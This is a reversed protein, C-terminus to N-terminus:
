KYILKFIFLTTAMSFEVAAFVALPIIKNVVAYIVWLLWNFPNRVQQQMYEGPTLGLLLKEKVSWKSQGDKKTHSIIPEFGQAAINNM